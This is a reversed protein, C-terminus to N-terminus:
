LIVRPSLGNIDIVGSDMFYKVNAGSITKLYMRFYPTYNRQEDDEVRELEFTEVRKLNPLNNKIFPLPYPSHKNVTRLTVTFRVRDIDLKRRLTEFGRSYRERTLVINDEIAKNLLESLDNELSYRQESVFRLLTQEVASSYREQYLQSQLAQVQEEYEQMAKGFMAKFGSPKEIKSLAEAQVANQLQQELQQKYTMLETNHLSLQQVQALTIAEGGFSGYADASGAASNLDVDIYGGFSEYRALVPMIANKYQDQLDADIKDLMSTIEARALNRYTLCAANRVQKIEDVSHYAEIKYFPMAEMDPDDLLRYGLEVSLQTQFADDTRKYPVFNSEEDNEDTFNKKAVMSASEYRYLVAKDSIINSNNIIGVYHAKNTVDGPYSYFRFNPFKDHSLRLYCLLAGVSATTKPDGIYEGERKFPYWSDCRYNHMPLVRSAPLCVRQMFFSRIAPLKSSRGTLLLLDCDFSAIVEGFKTLVRCLNFRRGAMFERNIKAIDFSLKFDMISFGKLYRGMINDVFNVVEPNPMECPGPRKITVPLQPNLEKDELFDRVTGTVFCEATFLSVNELHFLLKHALKVLLQQTLQSRLMENRINGVNVEGVLEQLVPNFKIRNKALPRALRPMICFSILDHLIDDGAIKFGDTYVDHPIIDASYHPVDRKFTYDKIVLDTTGGGIDLSAIRASLLANGEHDVLREAIRTGVNPRRLCRIFDQCNGQYTKQSENYIYVVQGAEAENWDMFVQPIPPMITKAAAASASVGGVGGAGGVSNPGLSRKDTNGFNFERPSSKDFGLSKWLIGLAEYVCARYLEREEAPMSPPTTLIIAKLRRPANKSTCQERQAVSNMQVMAHMIIEILMFTMTSHNSYRSELNDYVMEDPALAFYAKGETNFYTGISNLFARHVQEKSQQRLTKSDILYSYNNFIWRDNSLPDTNWLYRKPSTLGSNGENGERHASLNAAENGVRVMSPWNFADPRGSRASRNDYDFNPKSFEIRSVFPENYIQEPANLDRLTLVYTDSFDDDGRTVQNHDEVMIGCSRANGIDLILSVDVVKYSGMATASNQNAIFHVPRPQLMFGIFALVNLYHAEHEHDNDMLANLEDASLKGLGRLREPALDKYVARVWENVWPLGGNVSKLFPQSKDATYALNFRVGSEVDRETPAFYGGMMDNYPQTSTDFAFVIRYYEQPDKSSSGKSAGFSISGAVSGAAGQAGAGVGGAGATGLAGGAGSARGVGAAGSAAAGNVAGAGAVSANDYNESYNVANPSFSSKQGHAILYQDIAVPDTVKIIRARVWNLPGYNAETIHEPIYPLPFWVGNYLELSDRMAVEYDARLPDVERGNFPDTYILESTVKPVLRILPENRAAPRQFYGTEVMKIPSTNDKTKWDVMVDFDVFQVGSNQVLEINGEIPVVEPYM